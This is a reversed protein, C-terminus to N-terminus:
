LMGRLLEVLPPNVQAAHTLSAAHAAGEIKILGRCGSLGAALVEARELPIAHDATGHVLVAPAKIEGLRPTIDDRSFLCEAPERLTEGPRERWRTVWPEWHSRDGLIISAVTEIVPDIPGISTWTQTLQRYGAIVEPADVGAQTSLLVLGRVREPALLAARLSSFGGQSMGGIFAREVGLHDLLGLADKALDWYTFPQGDWKTQGFGRADWRIVRFLPTLVELQADFMSQDMLFGHGLILAPGSGGSDEYFLNQGRVPALAMARM